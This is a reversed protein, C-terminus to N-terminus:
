GIHVFTNANVKQKLIYIISLNHTHMIIYRIQLTSQPQPVASTAEGRVADTSSEISTYTTQSALHSRSTAYVQQAMKNVVDFNTM